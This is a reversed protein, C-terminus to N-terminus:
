ILEKVITNMNNDNCMKYDWCVDAVLSPNLWTPEEHFEETDPLPRMFEFGFGTNQIDKQDLKQFPFAGNDKFDPIM